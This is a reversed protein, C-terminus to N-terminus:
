TETDEFIQIRPNCPVCLDQEQQPPPYPRHQSPVSFSATIPPWQGTAWPSVHIAQSAVTVHLM